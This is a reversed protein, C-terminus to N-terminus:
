GTKDPCVCVIQMQFVSVVTVSLLLGSRMFYAMYSDAECAMGASWCLLATARRVPTSPPPLPGRATPAATTLSSSEGRVGNTRSLAAGQAPLAKRLCVALSEAENLCPMVISLELADSPLSTPNALQGSVTADAGHVHAAASDLDYM